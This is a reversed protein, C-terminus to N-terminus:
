RLRSDCRCWGAAACRHHDGAGHLLCWSVSIHCKDVHRASILQVHTCCVCTCSTGVAEIEESGNAIPVLVSQSASASSDNVRQSVAPVRPARLKQTFTRRSQLSNLQISCAPRTHLSAKSLTHLQSHTDVHLQRWRCAPHQRSGCASMISASQYTTGIHMNSTGRHQLLQLTIHDTIKCPPTAASIKRTAFTIHVMM